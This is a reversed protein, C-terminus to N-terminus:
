KRAIAKNLADQALGYVVIGLGFLMLLLYVISSSGKENAVIDRKEGLKYAWIYGYIGCTVLNLLFAIGGNTDNERGSAKNMENTLCVFWYIGYIGCTVISLIVAVAISREQIGDTNAHSEQATEKEKLSAGCHVCFSAEAAVANGCNACFGNGKGKQVGCKLCVDQTEHLSEGCNKCYM